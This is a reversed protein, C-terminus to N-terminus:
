HRKINREAWEKALKQAEAIQDLNMLKEIPEREKTDAVDFWKHTQM